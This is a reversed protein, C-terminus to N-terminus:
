YADHEMASPEDTLESVQAHPVFSQEVAKFPKTQEAEVLVQEQAAPWKLVTTSELIVSAQGEHVATALERAPVANVHVEAVSECIKAHATPYQFFSVSTASTQVFQPTTALERALVVNVHVEAVSELTTAHATPHQFSV